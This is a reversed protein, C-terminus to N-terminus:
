RRVSIGFVTTEPNYERWDFWYDQIVEIPTLRAGKVPGGTACGRFNWHRASISDVMFGAQETIRYLDAIGRGGPLTRSFARVSESDPGLVLLVALPRTADNM